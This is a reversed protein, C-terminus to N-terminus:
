WIDRILKPSIPGVLGLDMSSIRRSGSSTHLPPLSILHFSPDSNKHPLESQPNPNDSQYSMTQLGYVQDFVSFIFCLAVFLYGVMSYTCRSVMELTRNEGSKM